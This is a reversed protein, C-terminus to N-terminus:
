TLSKKKKKKRQIEFRDRPFSSSNSGPLRLIESVAFLKAAEKKLDADSVADLEEDEFERLLHAKVVLADYASRAIPLIEALEVNPACFLPLLHGARDTLDSFWGLM